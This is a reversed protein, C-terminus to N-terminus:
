LWFVLDTPNYEAAARLSPDDHPHARLASAIFGPLTQGGPIAVSVNPLAGQDGFDFAHEREVLPEDRAACIFYTLHRIIVIADINPFSVARGDDSRAFSNETLLGGASDSTLSTIPEYIFDDWVIVLLSFCGHDGAKFPAFKAEASLLFDKVPNDRPLTLQGASLDELMDRDLGRGPAQVPNSGREIIHQLIAPAKVEFVFTSNGDQVLLEPRKGGGPDSPEHQFRPAGSPWHLSLLQRLVLIEAMKQNLMDWHPLHEQHGRIGIVDALLQRGLGPLIRECDACAEILGFVLPHTPRQFHYAFWHWPGESIQRAADVYLDVFLGADTNRM